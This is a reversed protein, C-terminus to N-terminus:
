DKENIQQAPFKKKSAFNKPMMMNGLLNMFM